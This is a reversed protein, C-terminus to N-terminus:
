AGKRRALLKRVEPVLATPVGIMTQDADRYAAEHEAVQEDETQNEYYQILDRVRKENWGAPFKQRSAPAKPAKSQKKM